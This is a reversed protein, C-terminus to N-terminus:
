GSNHAELFSKFILGGEVEESRRNRWERYKSRFVAPFPADDLFQRATWDIITGNVRVAWHQWCGALSEYPYDKRDQSRNPDYYEIEGEIGHDMLHRVFRDSAETCQDEAGEPTDWGEEEAIPHFSDIADRLRIGLSRYAV